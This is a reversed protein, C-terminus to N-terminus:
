QQTSPLHYLRCNEVPSYRRRPLASNLEARCPCHYQVVNATTYSISHSLARRGYVNQCKVGVYSELALELIPYHVAENWAPEPYSKQECEQSKGLIKNVDELERLMQERTRTDEATGGDFMFPPLIDMDGVATAIEDEYRNAWLLTEYQDM